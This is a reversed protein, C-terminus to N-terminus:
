WDWVDPTPVPIGPLGPLGPADRLDLATRVVDAATSPTVEDAHAPAAAAATLGLAIVATVLIRRSKSM